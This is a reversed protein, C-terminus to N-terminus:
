SIKVRPPPREGCYTLAASREQSNPCCGLANAEGGGVAWTGNDAVLGCEVRQRATRFAAPVKVWFSQSM